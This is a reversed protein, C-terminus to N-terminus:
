RCVIRVSFDRGNQGARGAATLVGDAVRGIMTMNFHQDVHTQTGVGRYIIQVEGAPSISGNFSQMESRGRRAWSGSISGGQITTPVNWCDAPFNQYAGRCWQANFTGDCSGGGKAAPVQQPSPSVM